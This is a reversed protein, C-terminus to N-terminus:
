LFPTLFHEVLQETNRRSQTRRTRPQKSLAEKTHSDRTEQSNDNETAM